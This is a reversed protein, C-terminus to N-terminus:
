EMILHAYRLAFRPGIRGAYPGGHAGQHLRRYANQVEAAAPPPAIGNVQDWMDQCLELVDEASNEVWELGLEDYIEPRDLRVLGVPDVNFLGKRAAEAFPLFIGDERRRLLKPTYLTTAGQGALSLPVLNTIALPTNFAVPVCSLGTAAGLFFKCRASLYIDMFDSRYRTGYDLVRPGLDMIPQEVIAGMRVAYVGQDAIWRAADLFNNISCNRNSDRSGPLQGRFAADRSHFCMWQAGDEMGMNHLLRRGEADEASNLAIVPPCVSYAEFSDASIDSYEKSIDICFRTQKLYPSAFYFLRNIHRNRVFRFYRSWIEILTENAASACFFIMSYKKNERNRRAYTEMNLALHGIRETTLTALRIPRVFELAWLVALTPIAVVLGLLAFIRPSLSAAVSHSVPAKDM